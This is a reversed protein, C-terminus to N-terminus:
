HHTGTGFNGDDYSLVTCTFRVLSLKALLSRWGATLLREFWFNSPSFRIVTAPTSARITFLGHQYDGSRYMTATLDGVSFSLSSPTHM